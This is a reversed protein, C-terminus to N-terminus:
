PRGTSRFRKQYATPSIGYTAAFLRRLTEDSGMGSSRASETVSHGGELLSRAAELRVRDVYKAPTVGFEALFRRSLHRPSVSAARALAPLSHDAAPDANIREVIDRMLPVTSPPISNPVSFQSQGGPRQMFVVLERAVERALDPGYDSEVLALSLDIGATVGASTFTSGSRVFISDVQVDIKPYKERLRDAHRWHTTATKGDLYGGAALLFAGTCVSAIRASRAALPRLTPLLREAIWPDRPLQDSGAVILTDLEPADATSSDVALAV